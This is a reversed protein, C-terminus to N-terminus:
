GGYQLGSLHRQGDHQEASCTHQHAAQPVDYVRFYPRLGLYAAVDRSHSFREPHGLTLVFTLATLTGVGPISTLREVEPHNAGAQTICEEYDQIQRGLADIQELLGALAPQLM